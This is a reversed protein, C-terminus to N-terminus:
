AIARAAATSLDVSVGSDLLIRRAIESFVFPGISRILM